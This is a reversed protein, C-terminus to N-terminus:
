TLIEDTHEDSSISNYYQVAATLEATRQPNAEFAYLLFLMLIFQLLRYWEKVTRPM